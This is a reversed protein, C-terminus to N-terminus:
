RFFLALLRINNVHNLILQSVSVFPQLGAGPELGLKRLGELEILARTTRPHHSAVELMSAMLTDPVQRKYLQHPLIKLKEPPYWLPRDDTGCNIAPL